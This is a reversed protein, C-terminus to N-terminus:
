AQLIQFLENNILLLLFLYSNFLLFSAFICLSFTFEIKKNKLIERILKKLDEEVYFDFELIFDIHSIMYHILTVSNRRKIDLLTM